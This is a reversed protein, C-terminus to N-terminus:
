KFVHPYILIISSNYETDHQKMKNRFSDSVKMQTELIKANNIFHRRVRWEEGNQWSDFITSQLKMNEM